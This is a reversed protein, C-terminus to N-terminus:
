VARKSYLFSRANRVTKPAMKPVMILRKKEEFLGKKAGNKNCRNPVSKPLWIPAWLLGKPFWFSGFDTSPAPYPNKKSKPKM